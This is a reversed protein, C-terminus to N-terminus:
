DEIQRCIGYARFEHNGYKDEVVLADRTYLYGDPAYYKGEYEQEQYVYGVVEGRFYLCTHGQNGVREYSWATYKDGEGVYECVLDRQQPEQEVLTSDSKWWYSGLRPYYVMAYTSQPAFQFDPSAVPLSYFTVFPCNTIGGPILLIQFAPWTYRNPEIIDPFTMEDGHNVFPTPLVSNSTFHGPTISINNLVSAYTNPDAHEGPFTQATLDINSRVLTNPHKGYLIELKKGEIDHRIFLLYGTAPDQRMYLKVTNTTAGIYAPNPDRWYVISDTVPVADASTASGPIYNYRGYAFELTNTNSNAAFNPIIMTGEPLSDADGEYKTIMPGGQSYQIVDGNASFGTFLDLDVCDGLTAEGPNRFLDATQNHPISIIFDGWTGSSRLGKAFIYGSTQFTDNFVVKYFHLRQLNNTTKINEIAATFTKRIGYISGTNILTGPGAYVGFPIEISYVTDALSENSTDLPPTALITQCNSRIYQGGSVHSPNYNNNTTTIAISSFTTGEPLIGDALRFSQPRVLGGSFVLSGDLFAGAWCRKAINFYATAIRKDAGVRDAVSLYSMPIAGNETWWHNIINTAVGGNDARKNIFIFKGEYTASTPFSPQELASSFPYIYQAPSAYYNTANIPARQLSSAMSCTFNPLEGTFSTFDYLTFMDWFPPMYTLNTSYDLVAVAYIEKFREDEVTASGDAISKLLYNASEAIWDLSTTEGVRVLETAATGYYFFYLNSIRAKNGFNSFLRHPLRTLKPCSYFMYSMDISLPDCFEAYRDFFGDEISEFLPQYTMFHALWRVVTSGIMGAPAYGSPYAPPHVGSLSIIRAGENAYSRQFNISLQNARFSVIFEGSNKYTYGYRIAGHMPVPNLLSLQALNYVDQTDGFNVQFDASAMGEPIYFYFTLGDTVDDSAYVEAQIDWGRPPTEGIATDFFWRQAHNAM